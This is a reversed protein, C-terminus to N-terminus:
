RESVTSGIDNNEQIMRRVIEYVGLSHAFRSHEATHYVMYSAGLQKIRRLRQFERSNICKWIVDYEVHIYGHIPDRLVKIEDLKKFM